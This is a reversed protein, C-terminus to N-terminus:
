KIAPHPEINQDAVHQMYPLIGDHPLDPFTENIKELTEEMKWGWKNPVLGIPSRGTLYKYLIYNNLMAGATNQHVGDKYLLSVFGPNKDNKILNGQKDREVPHRALMHEWVKGAHIVEVNLENAIFDLRERVKPQANPFTKWGMQPEYLLPVAGSKRVWQVLTRVYPYFDKEPENTQMETWPQIIVLDWGKDIKDQIKLSSWTVYEEVKGAGKGTQEVTLNFPPNDQQALQPFAWGVAGNFWLLSNNIFLIRSGDRVPFVTSNSGDDLRVRMETTHTAGGNDEVTLVAKGFGTDTYERVVQPDTSTSGDSFAWRYAVIKGDRDRSSDGNFTIKAPPQALRTSAKIVAKPPINEVPFVEIM